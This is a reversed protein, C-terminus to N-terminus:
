IRVYRNFSVLKILGCIELETLSAFVDGIDMGLKGCIEDPFIPTDSITHYVALANETLQDTSFNDSKEEKETKEGINENLNLLMNIKNDKRRRPKKDGERDYPLYKDAKKHHGNKETKRIDEIKIKDITHTKKSKKEFWKVIDKYNVAASAGNALLINSGAFRKDDIGGPVAFITKNQEEADAATILSGSSLGAEIVLVCDSLASIIRNRKPFTFKSPATGPPYESVLAGHKEIENRVHEFKRLYPYGIGCGLVCITNGGAKLAGYHAHTDIGDAGGSIIIYGDEALGYSFDFATLKGVGSANRTGVVGVSGKCENDLKGKVYLVIPPSKIDKLKRPYKEDIFCFIDINNKKCNEFDREAKATDHKLIKASENRSFLGSLRLETEGARFVSEANVFMKTIEAIKSSGDNLCSKLWMWYIINDM